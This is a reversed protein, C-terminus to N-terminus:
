KTVTQLQRRWEQAKDLKGWASYLQVLKEGAQPLSADVSIAPSQKLLGQYGSVLLPEAEAYKGQGLLSAGLLSQRDYTDWIALNQNGTGNMAERLLSEAGAYRQETLRLRAMATLCARLTLNGAPLKRDLALANTLTSEALDDKGENQYLIGLLTMANAVDPHEAGRLRQVKALHKILIPEAEIFKGVAREHAAFVMESALTGRFEEGQARRYTELNNKAYLEADTFNGLSDLAAVYYCEYALTYPDESGNIRRSIELIQALLVASETFRGELRYIGSLDSQLLLTDPHEAGYMRRFSSVLPAAIKEAEEPRNM